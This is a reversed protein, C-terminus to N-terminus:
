ITGGLIIYLHMKRQWKKNRIENILNDADQFDQTNNKINFDLNEISKLIDDNGQHKALSSLAKIVIPNKLSDWFTAFIDINSEILQIILATKSIHMKSSLNELKDNLEAPIAVSLRIYKDKSYAM